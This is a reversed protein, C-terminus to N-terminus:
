SLQVIEYLVFLTQVFICIGKNVYFLSDKVRHNSHSHTIDNGSQSMLGREIDIYYSILFICYILFKKLFFSYTYTEWKYDIIHQIPDMEFLELNDCDKLIRSIGLKSDGQIKELYIYNYQM